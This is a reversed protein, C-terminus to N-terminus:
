KNLSIPCLVSTAALTLLALKYPSADRNLTQTACRALHNNLNLGDAGAAKLGLVAFSLSGATTTEPLSNLLYKSTRPIRDDAHAEDAIAALAIGSPQVHPRLEQGLVFTNGYNCGGEPLLRDTILRVAERTRPHDEHGTAKLAMVAFATPELWSHTGAVWPWGLLTTDHGMGEQRDLPKGSISLTWDIAKRICGDFQARNANRDAESWALVALSTPWGPLPQDAFVGLHGDDAQQDALVDLLKEAERSHGNALLALAAFAAPETATPSGAHYGWRDSRLLVDLADNLWAM